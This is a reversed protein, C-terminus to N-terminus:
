FELLALLRGFLLNIEPSLSAVLGFKKAYGCSHPTWFEYWRCCLLDSLLATDGFLYVFGGAVLYVKRFAFLSSVTLLARSHLLRGTFPGFGFGFQGRPV